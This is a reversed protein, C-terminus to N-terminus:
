PVYAFKDRVFYAEAAGCGSAHAYSRLETYAAANSLTNLTLGTTFSKSGSTMTSCNINSYIKTKAGGGASDVIVYVGYAVGSNSASANTFQASNFTISSTTNRKIIDAHTFSFTQYGTLYSPSGDSVNHSYASTNGVPQLTSSYANDAYVSGIGLLSLSAFALSSALLKSLKM